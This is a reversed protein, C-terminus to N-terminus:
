PQKLWDEIESQNLNLYNSTVRVLNGDQVWLIKPFGNSKAHLSTLKTIFIYDHNIQHPIGQAPSEKYFLQLSASDGAFVHYFPLASNRKVMIAMKKAASKCHHCGTSLVCIIHKGKHYDFTPAVNAKASYLTSLDIPEKVITDKEQIFIFDPPILAIVAIIPAVFLIIKSWIEDNIRFCSLYYIFAILVINKISAEMPTMEIVTGFCGCNGSVGYVHMVWMLYINFFMLLWAAWKYLQRNFHYNFLFLIGFIAELCILVRSLVNATGFSMLNTEALAWEFNQIGIIKTYASFIFLAGILVTITYYLIKHFTTM